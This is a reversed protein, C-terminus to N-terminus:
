IAPELKSRKECQKVETKRLTEHLQVLNLHHQGMRLQIHWKYQFEEINKKKSLHFEEINQHQILQTPHNGILELDFPM